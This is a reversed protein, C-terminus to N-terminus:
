VHEVGKKSVNAETVEEPLWDPADDPSEETWSWADYVHVRDTGRERIRIEKANAEGEDSSGAPETFRRAVKLAAQRPTNGTFVSDENVEGNEETRYVFYRDDEAM